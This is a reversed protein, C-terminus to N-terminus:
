VRLKWRVLKLGRRFLPKITSLNIRGSKFAQIAQIRGAKAKVRKWDSDSLGPLKMNFRWLDNWHSWDNPEEILNHKLAIDWLGSAPFPNALSSGMFHMHGKKLLSKAFSITNECEEVGEYCLGGQEEWVNFLMFLGYVVIGQRSLARSSNEIDALTIRKKIGDLTKQNGSEAGIFVLWTGMEKIKEALEDTMNNARIQFKFTLNLKADIIAQSVKLAHRKSINFDDTEDFIEKVGYSQKLEILEDVINQPSRFRVYPKCVRWVPNSCFICHYPCGRSSIIVMDPKRKALYYGKYAKQDEVLDRAPFPIDDLNQIYSRPSNQIIEGNNRWAIGTIDKLDKGELIALFTEEGEGMVCIDTASRQMVEEPLATPHPGGSVILINNDIEKVSNIFDYAGECASTTYSIGVIEPRFRKVENITKEMGLLLGDTFKFDIDKLESRAYSALYLLGLPPYLHEFGSSKQDIKQPANILHVKTM